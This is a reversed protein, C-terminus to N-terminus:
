KDYRARKTHYLIDETIRRNSKIMDAIFAFIVLQVGVLFTISGFFVYNLYPTVAFDHSFYQYFFAIFIALSLALLTYGPRGFFKMPRVDRVARLILRSSNQVYKWISKVVRSKRDAFYTVKVPIWLVKMGKGLADIITEQTYTFEGPLNLRMLTERSYARFGCTLDKIPHGMFGGILNAALQNLTSKIWPMDKAEVGGFRDASVMHARGDLIPAVLKAIDNSDFQGDADINVMVDAGNELAHEASERFTWGIGRNMARTYVFDAGGRKAEASTADHSGDDVVQVLVETFPSINRNINMITEAIKKEENYAPLNIVLRM